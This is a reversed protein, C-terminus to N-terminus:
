NFFRANLFTERVIAKADDRDDARFTSDFEGSDDAAWYLPQGAGWYAGCDDYGGSNLRVRRLTIKVAPSAASERAKAAKFLARLREREQRADEASAQWASAKFGDSPRSEKLRLAHDLRVCARAFEADLEASTRPDPGIYPRGRAAGRKPDGM